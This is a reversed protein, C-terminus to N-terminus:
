GLALLRQPEASFGLAGSAVQRLNDVINEDRDGKLIYGWAGEDIARLVLDRSVHGSLIVFRLDPTAALERMAEFPPRGPMDLDMLVILPHHLAIAEALSSADALWGCWLFGGARALQERIADAISRNDDVCLVSIATSEPPKM